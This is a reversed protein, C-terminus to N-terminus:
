ADLMTRSHHAVNHRAGIALVEYREALQRHIMAVCHDRAALAQRREEAARRQYYSQSNTM